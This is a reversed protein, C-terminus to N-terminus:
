SPGAPAATVPQSRQAARAQRLRDLQERARPDAEQAVRSRQGWELWAALYADIREREHLYYVITAHVQELTLSPYSTVIQEPTRARYIHDYLVTEIGVRTGRLRIDEPSHMDFYDELQM